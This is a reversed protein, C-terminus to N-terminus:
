KDQSLQLDKKKCSKLETFTLLIYSIISLIVSTVVILLDSLKKGPLIELIIKRTFMVICSILILGITIRICRKINPLSKLSPDKKLLYFKLLLAQTTVALMGALALGNIDYIQVLLLSFSINILFSIGGIIVPTLTDKLSHFTRTIFSTIGYFPLSFCFIGLIPLTTTVDLKDFNGWHFFINLIEERLMFMGVASPLLIWSMSFLGNSFTEAFKHHTKETAAKSMKPFFVTSIAGGFIGLPFDLIRSALYLISVASESFWFAIMRSILINAQAITGGILGPFFLKLITKLAQANKVFFSPRWGCRYLQILPCILQIIGGVLVSYCLSNLITHIPSDICYGYIAMSIIMTINLWISTIAPIFFKGLVNLAASAVASLCIFIMYPMLIISFEIGYTWRESLELDCNLIGLMSITILATIATSILFLRILVHNLLSFMAEEKKSQLESAFVPVIASSLAGEGLLRRFLHPLTFALLFASGIGSYGCFSFFIIDRFFGFGRSLVTASSVNLINKILSNM